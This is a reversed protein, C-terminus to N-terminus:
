KESPRGRKSSPENKSDYKSFPLRKRSSIQSSPTTKASSLFAPITTDTTPSASPPTSLPDASPEAPLYPNNIDVAIFHHDKQLAARRTLQLKFAYLNRKLEEFLLPPQEPDDNGLECVIKKCPLRCLKQM